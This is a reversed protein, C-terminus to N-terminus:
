KDKRRRKQKAPVANDISSVLEIGDDCLTINRGVIGPKVIITRTNERQSPKEDYRQFVMLCGEISQMRSRRGAKEYEENNFTKGEDDIFLKSTVKVLDGPKFEISM